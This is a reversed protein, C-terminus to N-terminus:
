SAELTASFINNQEVLVVKLMMTKFTCIYVSYLLSMKEKKGKVFRGTCTPEGVGDLM